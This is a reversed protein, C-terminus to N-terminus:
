RLKETRLHAAMEKARGGEDHLDLWCVLPSAVWGIDSLVRFEDTAPLDSPIVSMNSGSDVKKAGLAAALTSIHNEAVRVTVQQVNTLHPAHLQAGFMGTFSYPLDEASCVAEIKAAVESATRAGPVYFKERPSKGAAIISAQWIDLMAPRDVILRAKSAGSGKTSIWGFRDMRELAGSVTGAALGTMAAIQIGKLPEGKNAWLAHAVLATKGSLVAKVIRKERKAQPRDLLVYAGPLPLFLSGGLDAYGVKRSRLWERAGESVAEAAIVPVFETTGIHEELKWVAERADRPFLQRSPLICLRATAGDLGVDATFFLSNGEREVSSTGGIGRLLVSLNEIIDNPESKPM